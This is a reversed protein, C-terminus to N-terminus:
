THEYPVHVNGKLETADSVNAHTYRTFIQHNWTADVHTKQTISIWPPRRNTFTM